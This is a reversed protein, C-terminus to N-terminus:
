LLTGSHASSTNGNERWGLRRENIVNGIENDSKKYENLEM